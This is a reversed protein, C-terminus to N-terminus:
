QMQGFITDSVTQVDQTGDVEIFKINSTSKDSQNKYYQILPSTQAHYVSLRHRVTEEKDDDRQILAEGTLDDKGPQKPPNHIVHYIRDSNPHIRRGSIRKIIEEDEVNFLIVYDIDVGANELSEAQAITRPYGDLLFGNQCDPQKIREKVLQTILKDPVLEGSDLISKIEKGIESQSKIEARLMDGTSIQPIHYQQEILKAQTGKGAGPPGLLIAKM